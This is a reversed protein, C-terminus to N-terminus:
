SSTSKHILGPPSCDTMSFPKWKETIKEKSSQSHTTSSYGLLQHLTPLLLEKNEMSIIASLPFGDAALLTEIQSRTSAVYHPYIRRHRYHQTATTTAAAIAGTTTEIDGLIVVTANTNEWEDIGHVAITWTSGNVSFYNWADYMNALKKSSWSDHHPAPHDIDGCGIVQQQNRKDIDPWDEGSECNEKHPKIYHVIMQWPKFVSYGEHKGNINVHPIKIHYLEFMWFLPGLGVDHTVDFGQCIDTVGHNAFAVAMLVLAQRNVMVPQYWGGSHIESCHDIHWVGQQKVNWDRANGVFPLHAIGSMEVEQLWHMLIDGRFFTDDDSHFVYKIQSFVEPRENVLYNFLDDM